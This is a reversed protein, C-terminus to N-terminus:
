GRESEPPPALQELLELVQAARGHLEFEGPVRRPAPMDRWRSARLVEAHSAGIRVIEAVVQDQVEGLIARVQAATAPSQSDAHSSM